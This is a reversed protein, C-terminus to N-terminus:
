SHGHVRKALKLTRGRTAMKALSVLVTQFPKKRTVNGDLQALRHLHQHAPAPLAPTWMPPAPDPTPIAPAPAHGPTPQPAPHRIPSRSRALPTAIAAALRLAPLTAGTPRSGTPARSDPALFCPPPKLGLLGRTAPLGWGGARLCVGPASRLGCVAGLLPGPQAKASRAAQRAAQRAAPLMGGAARAAGAPPKAGCIAFAARDRATQVLPSLRYVCARMKQCTCDRSGARKRCGGPSPSQPRAAEAWM